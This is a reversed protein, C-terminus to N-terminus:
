IGAKVAVEIATRCTMLSHCARRRTLPHQDLVVRPRSLLGSGSRRLCSAHAPSRDRRSSPLCQRLFLQVRSPTEEQACYVEQTFHYKMKPKGGGVTNQLRDYYQVSWEVQEGDVKLGFAKFAQLATYRLAHRRSRFGLRNQAPSDSCCRRDAIAHTRGAPAPLLM